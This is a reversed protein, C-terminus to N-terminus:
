DFLLSEFLTELQLRTSEYNSAREEFEIQLYPLPEELNEIARKYLVFDELAPECFKATLFIIAEAGSRKIRENIEHERGLPNHSTPLATSYSIYAQALGELPDVDEPIPNTLYRQGIQFDFDVAFFGVEEILQIIELTPQECFPGMVIVPVFDKIRKSSKILEKEFNTLVELFEYDPLLSGLRLLLYLKDLRLSGPHDVRYKIISNIKDTTKNSIIIQELLKEKNFVNNSTKEFKKILRNYEAILFVVAGRSKFNQPYHLMHSLKSPFNREFIGALNRSVDCIYPSIFGDFEDTNKVLALELTSKPISCIFSGLYAEAHTLELFEGGGQITVPIMDFASILPKPVYVPFTTIVKRGTKQKFEKHNKFELDEIWQQALVLIKDISMGETMPFLRFDIQESNMSTESIM